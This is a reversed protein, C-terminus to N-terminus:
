PTKPAKSRYDARVVGDLVLLSIDIDWIGGGGAECDGIPPVGLAAPLLLFSYETRAQARSGGMPLRIKRNTPLSSGSTLYLAASAVIMWPTNRITAITMEM